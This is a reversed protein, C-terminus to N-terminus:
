LPDNAVELLVDGHCLAPACFCVLDRGRLEDRAQQQLLPDACIMAAYKAVVEERDGDRGIVYPNGWKSPRGIYVAGPPVGGHHKNLVRPQTLKM